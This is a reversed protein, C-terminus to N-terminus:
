RRDQHTAEALQPRRSNWHWRRPRSCREADARLCGISLTPAYHSIPSSGFNVYSRCSASVSLSGGQGSPAARIQDWCPARHGLGQSGVLTFLPQRGGLVAIWRDVDEEVLM